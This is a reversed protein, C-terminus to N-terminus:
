PPAIAPQPLGVLLSYLPKKKLAKSSKNIFLPRLISLMTQEQDM